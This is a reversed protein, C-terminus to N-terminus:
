YDTFTEADEDDPETNGTSWQQQLQQLMWLIRFLSVAIECM